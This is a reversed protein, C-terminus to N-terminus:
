EDEDNWGIIGDVIGFDLAEKATIAKENSMLKILEEKTMNTRKTYADYMLEDWLNWNYVGDNVESSKGFIAGSIQHILVLTSEQLYRGHGAVLMDVAASAVMGEGITVIPWENYTIMDMANFGAPVEGGYSHIHLIIQKEEEECEETVEKRKFLRQWFSEKIVPDDNKLEKNFKNNIENILKKLKLINKRSIDDYFYIHNGSSYISETKDDDDDGCKNLNTEYQNVRIKNDLSPNTPVKCIQRPIKFKM